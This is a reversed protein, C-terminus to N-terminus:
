KENLKEKERGERDNMEWPLDIDPQACAGLVALCFENSGSGRRHTKAVSLIRKRVGGGM